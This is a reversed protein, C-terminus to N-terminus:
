LKGSKELQMLNQERQRQEKYLQFQSEIEKAPYYNNSMNIDSTEQLPDVSFQKVKKASVILKSVKENNKRWIEAPIRMMEKSGDVYEMELIVPMILGGVNQFELVYYNLNANLKKREEETLSEDYKKYKEKDYETIKNPDYTTYFDILEPYKDVLYEKIDTKNRQESISIPEAEKAAKRKTKETSPNQSDVTYYKVDKLAIDCPETGYFWGRWFWDLDVGSADEMTRFFDAPMPHKFAWREAYEKFAKDFLERGMVTERLINLATAPKGYANNGLQLISESNTMIPNVVSKDASMYSVIGRAEGRSSPYNEEWEQETLYQCFTNLGEDMWSWQREDSNIIMPFFNHGVEHIVVSILGYKTRSSYTGDKEPRPGNFCIMPYEMGGIPGNVSIAVPYPYNVTYRSYVKLTLAISHTSYMGWLPNGEKPYFSMAMVDRKGVKVNMADWIYKRSSAFAFDRVNEATFKWTKTGSARSKENETAEEQTIILVPKDSTKAKALRERWLPKLVESANTLEGTATVVHDAPTTISVKYNGFCTAFEGSGLFQKHNWGQVDNYVCMRPYFQAICDIWNKDEEFYEGGSRGGKIKTNNIKYNWALQLVLQEGKKLPQTLDVRMMTNVITYKIAQGKADKVYEINFGGDFDNQMFNFSNFSMSKLDSQTSTLETMSTKKYINQDLQLWVYKLADPSNNYYVIKESGSIQQKEEDLKVNIDYDARQQWYAYGPAGAGNRYENPTPWWEELQHFKSNNYNSQANLQSACLILVFINVIKKMKKNNLLSLTTGDL